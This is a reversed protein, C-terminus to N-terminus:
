CLVGKLNNFGVSFALDRCLKESLNNMSSNFFLPFLLIIVTIEKEIETISFAYIPLPAYSLSADFSINTSTNRWLGRSYYRITKSLILVERL